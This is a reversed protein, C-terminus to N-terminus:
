RAATGTGIGTIAYVRDTTKYVVADVGDGAWTFSTPKRGKPFKVTAGGDVGDYSCVGVVTIPGVPEPQCDIGSQTRTLDVAVGDGDADVDFTATEPGDGRAADETPTLEFAFTRSEGSPVIRTREPDVARVDGSVDVSVTVPLATGEFRNTITVSLECSSTASAVGLFASDDDAVAVQLGRQLSASTFGGAGAVLALTAVAALVVALRRRRRM